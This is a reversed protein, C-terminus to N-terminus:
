RRCAPLLQHAPRKSSAMFSAPHPGRGPQFGPGDAQAPDQAPRSRASVPKAVRDIVYQLSKLTAEDGAALARLQRTINEQGQRIEAKSEKGTCPDFRAEFLEVLLRALLPYRSLTEEVYAQSFPVGTQLLFKCYGRLLAVQRWELGAGLVLRNFGDDEADGRWIRAFAEEFARNLSEVDIEGFTSEVEFEQIYVPSGDVDLRYPHESIVRLGM